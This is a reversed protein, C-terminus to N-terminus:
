CEVTKSNIVNRSRSRLVSDRTKGPSRHTHEKTATPHALSRPILSPLMPCASRAPALALRRKCPLKGCSIRARGVLTPLPLSVPHSSLHSTKLLLQLRTQCGCRVLRHHPCLWSQPPLIFCSNRLIRKFDQSEQPQSSTAQVSGVQLCLSDFHM